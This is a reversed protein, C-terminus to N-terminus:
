AIAHSIGGPERCAQRLGAVIREIVGAWQGAIDQRFIRVSGYWPMTEGQIGYRWEPSHHAAVWVPRGLAGGLHVVSTCVSVVLDLANVLAATHDYDDIADQWHHVRLGCDRGLRETEATTADYQLSVWHLGALGLAPFLQQPDISRLVRRSEITGGRWSLGVALGPGLARIRQRYQQTLQPHARLYAKGGKFAQEDRRFHLPLSGIPCVFHPICGSSVAHESEVRVSVEPFSRTFLDALKQSCELEVRGARAILDPLCSAFMIQDGVGQESHVLITRGALDEGNWRASPFVRKPRAESALRAESDPWGRRFEHRLLLAIAHHFRAMPNGEDLALAHRCAEIAEEVRALDRLAISRTVHLVPDHPRQRLACDLHGLGTAADFMRKVLLFGLSAHAQAHDPFRKLVVDCAARAQQHRGLRDLMEVLAVLIEDSVSPHDLFQWYTEIAAEYDGQEALMRGLGLRAPALAPDIDLAARFCEHARPYSGVLGYVQGLDSLAGANRPDLSVARELCSRADELRGSQACLVGLVQWCHMDEPQDELAERCLAEARQLDGANRCAEAELILQRTPPSRKPVSVANRNRDPAFIASLLRRLM